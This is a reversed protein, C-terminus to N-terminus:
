SLLDKRKQWFEEKNIEGRDYRIKLIELSGEEAKGEGPRSQQVIWKVLFILGVVVAIWFIWMFGGGMFGYNGGMM